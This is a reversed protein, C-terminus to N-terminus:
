AKRATNQRRVGKAAVRDIAVQDSPSAVDDYMGSDLMLQKFEDPCVLHSGSDDRKPTDDDLDSATPFSMDPRLGHSVIDEKVLREQLYKEGKKTTRAYKPNDYLSDYPYKRTAIEWCVIGFSYVDSQSNYTQLQTSSYLDSGDSKALRSATSSHIM